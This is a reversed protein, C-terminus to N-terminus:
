AVRRKPEPRTSSLSAVYVDLDDLRYRRHKGNLWVCRIAGDRVIKNLQWRSLGLMLAARAPTVLKPRTSQEAAMSALMDSRTEYDITLLRHCGNDQASM